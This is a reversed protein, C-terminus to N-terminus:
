IFVIDRTYKECHLKTLLVASEPVNEPIVPGYLRVISSEINSLLLADLPETNYEFCCSLVLTNTIFLTVTFFEFEKAM